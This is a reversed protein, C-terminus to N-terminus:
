PYGAELCAKAHRATDEMAERNYESPLKVGGERRQVTGDPYQYETPPFWRPVEDNVNSTALNVVRGVDEVVQTGENAHMYLLVSDKEKQSADIFEHRELSKMSEVKVLNIEPCWFNTEGILLQCARLVLGTKKSLRAKSYAIRAFRDNLDTRNLLGTIMVPDDYKIETTSEM